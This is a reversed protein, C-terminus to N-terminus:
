KLTARITGTAQNLTVLLRAPTTSDAIRPPFM